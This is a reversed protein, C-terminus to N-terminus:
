NGGVLTPISGAIDTGIAAFIIIGLVVAFAIFILARKIIKLHSEIKQLEVLRMDPRHDSPTYIPALRRQQDLRNNLGAYVQAPTVTRDYLPATNAHAQHHPHFEPYPNSM